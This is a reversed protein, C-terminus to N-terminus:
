SFSSFVLMNHNFAICTKYAFDVSTLKTVKVESTSEVAQPAALKRIEDMGVDEAAHTLTHLNLLSANDFTLGCHTCM